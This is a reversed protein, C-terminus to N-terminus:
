AQTLVSRRSFPPDITKNRLGLNPNLIGHSHELFRSRSGIGFVAIGRVDYLSFLTLPAGNDLRIAQYEYVGASPERFCIPLDIQPFYGVLWRSRFQSLCDEIALTSAIATNAM